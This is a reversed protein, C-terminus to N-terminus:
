IGPWLERMSKLKEKGEARARLWSGSPQDGYSADQRAATEIGLDALEDEIESTYSETAGSPSSSYKIQEERSLQSYELAAVNSSEKAVHAPKWRWVSSEEAKAIADDLRTM